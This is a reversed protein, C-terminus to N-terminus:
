KKIFEYDFNRLKDRGNEDTSYDYTATVKDGVNTMDFKTKDVKVSMLYADEYGREKTYGVGGLVKVTFTEPREPVVVKEGKIVYEMKERAETVTKEVIICNEDKFKRAM